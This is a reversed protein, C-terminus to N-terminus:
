FSQELVVTGKREKILGHIRSSKQIFKLCPTQPKRKHHTISLNRYTTVMM